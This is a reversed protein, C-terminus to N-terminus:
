INLETLLKLKREKYVRSNPNGKIGWDFNYHCKRCLVLWDDRERKYEGSKNAWDLRQKSGCKECDQPKIYNRTLWMHLGKYGIDKGVWNWHKEKKFKEFSHKHNLRHKETWPNPEGKIFHGKSNRM